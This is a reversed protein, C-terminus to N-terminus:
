ENQMADPGYSDHKQTTMQDYDQKMATRNQRVYTTKDTMQNFILDKCLLYSTTWDYDEAETLKFKNITPNYRFYSKTPENFFLMCAIMLQFEQKHILLYKLRFNNMM